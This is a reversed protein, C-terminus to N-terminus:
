ALVKLAEHAVCSAYVSADLENKGDALAESKAAAYLESYLEMRATREEAEHVWGAELAERDVINKSVVITAGRAVRRGKTIAGTKYDPGISVWPSKTESRYSNSKYLLDYGSQEFDGSSLNSVNRWRYKYDRLENILFSFAEGQRIEGTEENMYHGSSNIIEAVNALLAANEIRM